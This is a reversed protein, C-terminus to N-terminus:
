STSKAFLDTIPRSLTRKGYAAWISAMTLFKNLIPKGEKM